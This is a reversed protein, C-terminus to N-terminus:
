ILVRSWYSCVFNEELSGAFYDCEFPCVQTISRPWIPHERKKHTSLLCGWHHLPLAGRTLDVQEFEFPTCVLAWSFRTSLIPIWRGSCNYRTRCLVHWRSWAKSHLCHDTADFSFAIHSFKELKERQSFQWCCIKNLVAVFWVLLLPDCSLLEAVESMIARTDSVRAHRGHPLPNSEGVNIMIVDFSCTLLFWDTYTCAFQLGSTFSNTTVLSSTKGSHTSGLPQVLTWVFCVCLYFFTLICQLWM